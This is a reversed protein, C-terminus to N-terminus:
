SRGIRICLVRQKGCRRGHKRDPFEEKLDNAAIVASNYTGSIGTSLTVHILDKGESLIKRFHDSYEGVSVQSTKSDEGALMRRYLEHPAVSEGFDDKYQTGGLEYHYEIYAINRKEMWDKSLDAPSCSSIVYEGMLIGRRILRKRITDGFFIHTIVINEAM